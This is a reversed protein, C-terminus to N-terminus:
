IAMAVLVLGYQKVKLELAIPWTFGSIMTLFRCMVLSFTTHGDLNFHFSIKRVDVILGEVVAVCFVM